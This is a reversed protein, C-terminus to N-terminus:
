NMKYNYIVSGEIWSWHFMNRKLKEKLILGKSKMRKHTEEVNVDYSSGLHTALYSFIGGKKLIRACESILEEREEKSLLHYIDYVLVEDIKEDELPIDIEGSTEIIEINNIKQNNIKEKLEDLLGEEDSDLAYVMGKPGVIKSAVLSYIGTGCGFDLVKDGRSIGVDKLIRPAESKLWNDISVM